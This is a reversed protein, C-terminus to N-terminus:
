EGGEGADDTLDGNETNPETATTEQDKDTQSPKEVKKKINGIGVKYGGLLSFQLLGYSNGTNPVFFEGVVSLSAGIDLTWASRKGAQLSFQGGVIVSIPPVKSNLGIKAEIGAYPEVMFKHPRFTGKILLPFAMGIIFDEGNYLFRLRLPDVEVALFDLFHWEFGGLLSPLLSGGELRGVEKHVLLGVDLGQGWKFYYPYRRWLDDYDAMVLIPEPTSVDNSKEKLWGFIWILIGPLMDEAGQRDEVVVEDSFVLRQDSTNWLYLRLHYLGDEGLAVEGTLALPADRTMSPSPCVYAPQGNAPVDPPLNNMDVPVPDYNPLTTPLVDLLASFCDDVIYQPSGRFPVTSLVIKETQEAQGEDQACLAPPSFFAFGCTICFIFNRWRM